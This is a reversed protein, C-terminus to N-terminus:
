RQSFNLNEVRRRMRFNRRALFFFMQDIFMRDRRNSSTQSIINCPLALLMANFYCLGSIHTKPSSGNRNKTAFQKTKIAFGLSDSGSLSAIIVDAKNVDVHSTSPVSSRLRSCVMENQGSSAQHATGDTGITKNDLSTCMGSASLGEVSRNSRPMTPALVTIRTDVSIAAAIVEGLLQSASVYWRGRCTYQICCFCRPMKGVFSMRM